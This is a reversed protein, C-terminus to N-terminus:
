VLRARLLERSRGVCQPGHARRNRLYSSGSATTLRSRQSAGADSRSAAHLSPTVFTTPEPGIWAQRIREQRRTNFLTSSCGEGPAPSEWSKPDACITDWVLCTAGGGADFRLEACENSDRRPHGYPCPYQLCCWGCRVCEAAM